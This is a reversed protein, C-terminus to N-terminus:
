CKHLITEKIEKYIIDLADKNSLEKAKEGMKILLEKNHIIEEIYKNLDIEKGNKVDNEFMRIQEETYLTNNKNEFEVFGSLLIMYICIFLVFLVFLVRFFVDYNVKKEEEM